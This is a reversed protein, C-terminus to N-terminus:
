FLCYFVPLIVLYIFISYIIENILHKTDKWQDDKYNLSKDYRKYSFCM